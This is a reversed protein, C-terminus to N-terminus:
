LNYVWNWFRTIWGLILSGPTWLPSPLNKCDQSESCVHKWFSIGSSLSFTDTEVPISRQHFLKKKLPREPNRTYLFGSMIRFKCTDRKNSSFCPDFKRSPLFACHPGEPPQEQAGPGGAEVWNLGKPGTAFVLLNCQSSAFAGKTFLKNVSRGNCTVFQAVGRKCSLEWRWNKIKFLRHICGM